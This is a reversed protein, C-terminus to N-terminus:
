RYPIPSTMAHILDVALVPDLAGRRVARTLRQIRAFDRHHALFEYVLGQLDNYSDGLDEEELGDYRDAILPHTRLERLTIRERAM